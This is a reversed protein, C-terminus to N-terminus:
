QGVVGTGSVLRPVPRVAYPAVLTRTMANQTYDLRAKGDADTVATFADAAVVVVASMLTPPNSRGRVQWFERVM